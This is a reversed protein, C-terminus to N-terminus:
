LTNLILIPDLSSTVFDMSLLRGGRSVTFLESPRGPPEGNASSRPRDPLTAVVFLTRDSLLGDARFLDFVRVPRCALSGVTWVSEVLSKASKIRDVPGSFSGCVRTGASVVRLADIGSRLLLPALLVARPMFLSTGGGTGATECFEPILRLDLEARSGDAALEPLESSASIIRPPGFSLDGFRLVALKALSPRLEAEVVAVTAVYLELAGSTGFPDPIAAVELV